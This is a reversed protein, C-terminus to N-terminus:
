GAKQAAERKAKLVDAWPSKKFKNLRENTNEWIEDRDEDSIGEASRACDYCSVQRPDESFSGLGARKGCAIVKIPNGIKKNLLHVPHGYKGAM